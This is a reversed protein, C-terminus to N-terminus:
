DCKTRWKIWLRYTDTCTVSGFENEITETEKGWFKRAEANNAFGLMFITSFAGILLGKKLNSFSKITKLM